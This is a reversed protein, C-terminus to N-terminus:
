AVNVKGLDFVEFDAPYAGKTFKKQLAVVIDYTGAGVTTPTLTANEAALVQGKWVFQQFVLQGTTDDVNKMRGSPGFAGGANDSDLFGVFKKNSDYIRITADPTHSGYRTLVVPSENKLNFTFDGKPLESLSGTSNSVMLAPFGLDTDMIPVKRIDGKIGTYPVHVAVSDETEPTAVVFGSYLPFENAKGTEPEKFHLIVKVSKGAPIKVKRQSFTVSAYNPEIIPSGFPFANTGNYSKLTDAPVHSLTYTESKHGNNKISIRFTKRLNITDLLDIHDPSISTTTRVANLVNILGAGQQAASTFTKSHFDKSITATNKFVGRIVGSNRKSKKAHLYLAHSGAVYPTAMSTGSLVAYGGKKLPYTSLINGGPAGVDPKSRLDGDLGFSSFASVAGSNNITFPSQVKSWTIASKPNAKYTALIQVGSNSEVSAMPFDAVGGLSDLGADNSQVIMGAAGNKVGLAGRGGSKCRTVDGLVLVVKGKVDVGEYLSQDCGDSLKGSKDLLPVLTASAPLQILKNYAESFTYPFSHGGYTLSYFYVYMNDFSAVSTAHDGLGTDSVMWVGDGGDNGAAGVLAMGREILKEALVSTPNTKYSSGGGLSMNIIDMGDNFAREMAALIVDEGASGECGFVRYAGFIVEPAVGVFPQPPKPTTKIHLANGGVIGAVHTGHGFCDMPDDDPKPTNSGTYDDGVFDWGYAVRCHKGNRAFCGDTAGPAAFASHKYDIGTDIIGVKVGRGTLKYKNHLVDVGTMHHDSIVNPDTPKDQSTYIKPIDRLGIHWINKVGPIKSLSNGDHDSNVTIAAGNFVSYKNRITYDVNHANLAGQADAHKVGEDYEIIYGNPVIKSDASKLSHFKGASVLTAAAFASLITIIKM